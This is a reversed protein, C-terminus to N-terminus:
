MGRGARADRNAFCSTCSPDAHIMPRMERGDSPPLALTSQRALGLGLAQGLGQVQKMLYTLTLLLPRHM